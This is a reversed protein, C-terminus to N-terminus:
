DPNKAEEKLKINPFLATVMLILASFIILYIGIQKEPCEGAECRSIITFNRMAWAVNLAALILNLRKAWIKPIFSFVLILVTFIFHLYAPKGYRSLGTDVGSIVFGPNKIYVWPMFCAILLSIGAALAIWQSRNM